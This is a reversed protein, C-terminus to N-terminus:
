RSAGGTLLEGLEQVTAVLHTHDFDRLQDLSHSGYGVGIVMGCGAAAGEGLDSPTDGIKAVEERAGVELREMLAFVMDPAPRGHEVEDSTISADVLGDWPMRSLVMETTERDFGTDVAVKIGKGRLERFLSSVGEIERVRDSTKYFEIMLERFREHISARQAADAGVALQAVAIPKPIGMTGVIEERDPQFGAENLAKQLQDVVFGGEDFVTTGALDFVALKIPPRPSGNSSDDM